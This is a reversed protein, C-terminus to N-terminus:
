LTEIEAGFQEAYLEADDTVEATVCTVGLTKLSDNLLLKVAPPLEGFADQPMTLLGGPPLLPAALSITERWREGASLDSFCEVGRDTDLVLRSGRVYLPCNLKGVAESLIRDTGAAAKRYREGAATSARAQNDAQGALGESEKAKRALAQGEIAQRCITVAGAATALEDDTPCTVNAAADITAQWGAMNAAHQEASTKAVRAKEEGAQATRLTKEAIALEALLRDVEREAIETEESATALAAAAAEVTPGSHHKHAQEISYRATEARGYGDKASKAEAKLRAEDRIAEELDGQLEAPDVIEVAGFGAAAQRHGAATAAAKEAAQEAERAAKEAAAKVKGALTVLDTAPLKVAVRQYEIAGGFLDYFLSEDPKVGSLQVLAKIRHADAAEPDKIKPDVLDVLSLRGALSEVELAAGSRRQVKKVSITAGFGNVNGEAAGDRKDLAGNGRLLTDLAELTISKGLGSTGKLVVFGGDDPVRLDLKAIPGINSVSITKV